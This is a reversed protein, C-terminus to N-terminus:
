RSQSSEYLRLLCRKRYKLEAYKMVKRCCVPNFLGGLVGVLPLGQVAKALVLDDAFAQTTRTRQDIEEVRQGAM